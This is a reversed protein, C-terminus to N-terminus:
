RFISSPVAMRELDATSVGGNFGRRARLHHGSTWRAHAHDIWERTGDGTMAACDILHSLWRRFEM